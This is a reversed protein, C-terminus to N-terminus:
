HARDAEPRDRWSDLDDEEDLDLTARWGEAWERYAESALCHPNDSLRKGASRADAGQKFADLGTARRAWKPATWFFM